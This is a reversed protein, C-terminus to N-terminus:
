SQKFVAKVKKTQTNATVSPPKEELMHGNDPHVPESENESEQMSKECSWSQTPAYRSNRDETQSYLPRSKSRSRSHSDYASKEVSTSYFVSMRNRTHLLASTRDIDLLEKPPLVGFLVDIEGDWDLHSGFNSNNPHKKGKEIVMASHDPQQENSVDTRTAQVQTEPRKPQQEFNKFLQLHDQVERYSTVSKTAGTASKPKKLMRLLKPTACVIDVEVDGTESNVQLKFTWGVLDIRYMTPDGTIQHGVVKQLQPLEMSWVKTEDTARLPKDAVVYLVLPPFNLESEDKGIKNQVFRLLHQVIPSNKEM